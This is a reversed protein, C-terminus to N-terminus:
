PDRVATAGPKSEHDHAGAGGADLEGAGDALDCPLGELVVKPRYTRLVCFDNEEVARRPDEHGERLISSAPKL